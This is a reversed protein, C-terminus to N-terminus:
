KKIIYGFNRVARIVEIDSVARLKRKLTCIYVDVANSGVSGTLEKLDERSVPNGRNKM